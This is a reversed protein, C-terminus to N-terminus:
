LTLKIVVWLYGELSIKIILLIHRPNPLLYTTHVRLKYFEQHMMTLYIFIIQTINAYYVRLRLAQCFHQAKVKIHVWM